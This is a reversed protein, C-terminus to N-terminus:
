LETQLGSGSGQVHSGQMHLVFGSLQATLIGITDM